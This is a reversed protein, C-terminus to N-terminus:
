PRFLIRQTLRPNTFRDDGKIWDGSIDGSHPVFGPYIAMRNYAPEIRGIFKFEEDSATVYGARRDETGTTKLQNFFMTGGRDQRSLYVLGFVPVPDIHPRRQVASLDDPHVDIIGFDTDLRRFAEIPQGEKLIPPSRPLYDRNVLVLLKRALQTLSRNPLPISALKGPYPYSPPAYTLGLAMERLEDPRRYFNDILIVPIKGGLKEFRIKLEASMEFLDENERM